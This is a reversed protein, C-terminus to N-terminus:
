DFLHKFRVWFFSYCNINCQFMRIEAFLDYFTSWFHCLLLFPFHLELCRFVLNILLIGWPFCMIEHITFSFLFKVTDTCSISTFYGFLYQKNFFFKIVNIPVIIKRDRLNRDKEVLSNKLHITKRHFPTFSHMIRRNNLFRWKFFKICVFKVLRRTIFGM